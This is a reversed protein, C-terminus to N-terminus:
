ANMWIYIELRSFPHAPTVFLALDVLNLRDGSSSIGDPFRLSRKGRSPKRLDWAKSKGSQDFGHLGYVADCPQSFLKNM